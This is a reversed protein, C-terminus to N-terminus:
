PSSKNGECEQYFSIKTDYLVANGSFPEEELYICMAVQESYM